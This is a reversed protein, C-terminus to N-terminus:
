EKGEIHRIVRKAAEVKWPRLLPNDAIKHWEQVQRYWAEDFIKAKQRKTFENGQDLMTHCAHCAWASMSDNAKIGRGKGHIIENSHAAVTTEGYDGQCRPSIRFLCQEGQALKLLDPDRYM